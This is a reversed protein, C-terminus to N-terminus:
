GIIVLQDGTQVNDGEKVLISQITGAQHAKVESEMKMSEMVLVTDGENVADGVNCKMSFISGPLPATLPSGGGGSPAAVPTAVPAATPAPAMTGSGGMAVEVTFDKGNVRVQYISSGGQPAAPVKGAPSSAPTSKAAAPKEPLPNGRTEFFKLAVKEFLAYTLRDEESTYKNGLEKCVGEWEPELLDAPRCDTVKKDGAVKTLLDEDIPAPLKGYNGMVCQRTEKTIIKYREGTLVNLTAQSGVIQSTPTVLPPYGMDKRVRPVEKLVDELKDISNQEKLQNEMNSIMGGPIQSKLINIDM